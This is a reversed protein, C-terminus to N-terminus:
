WLHQGKPTVTAQRTKVTMLSTINRGILSAPMLNDTYMSSLSETERVSLIAQRSVKICYATRPIHPHNTLM